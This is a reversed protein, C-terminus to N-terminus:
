VAALSHADIPQPALPRVGEFYLEQRWHQDTMPFDSRFHAGRSETRLRAARTILRAAMLMNNLEGAGQTTMQALEREAEGLGRESREIGAHEWMLAKIKKATEQGATDDRLWASVAPWAFDIKKFDHNTAVPAAKLRRGVRAGFVLAELLSNSALRNAGHLGTHTVEGCAWLGNISSSGHHDVEIGGMHYHAAPTIPLVETAPDFGRDACLKTVTPFRQGLRSGLGRADLFVQHGDAAHRWIARAVVDRPALEALPHVVCMFRYGDEDILYAGEGRLAETLLSSPSGSGALATPHFQVFELGALLANARAAMALGDATSEQPNTTFSWLQGTGGSAIVVNGALYVHRLGQRDVAAVGTVRGNDLLLDLVLIGEDIRIRRQGRTALALTRVLEAGTADGSAHVIRRRQHAAERGLALSGDDDRDLEAGLMILEEIRAPGEETVLATIEPDGLGCAVSLTDKAHLQPSDEEGLAVAVGGQALVSSSGSEVTAKSLMTVSRGEANLAVMMGAVGTGVVIVDSQHTKVRESARM